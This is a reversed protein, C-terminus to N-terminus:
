SKRQLVSRTANVHEGSTRCYSMQMLQSTVLMITGIIHHRSSLKCGLKEGFVANVGVLCRSAHMLKFMNRCTTPVKILPPKVWTNSRHAHLSGPVGRCGGLTRRAASDPLARTVSRVYAASNTQVAGGIGMWMKTGSIQLRLWVCVLTGIWPLGGDGRHVTRRSMLRMVRWESGDLRDCQTLAQARTVNIMVSVLTQRTFTNLWSAWSEARLTAWKACDITWLGGAACRERSALGSKEWYWSTKAQFKSGLM